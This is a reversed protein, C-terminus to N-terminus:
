NPDTNVGGSIPMTNVSGNVTNNGLYFTARTYGVFSGIYSVDTAITKANVKGWATCNKIQENSHDSTIRGFASATAYIEQNAYDASVPETNTASFYDNVECFSNCDTITVNAGQVGGGIGGVSSRGYTTGGTVSVTKCHPGNIIGSVNCHHITYPDANDQSIERGFLGGVGCGRVTADSCDITAAYTCNELPISTVGAIGGVASSSEGNGKYTIIISPANGNEDELMSVNSIRANGGTAQGVIGGIYLSGDIGVEDNMTINHTGMVFINSIQGNSHEAVLGGISLTRDTGKLGPLSISLDRLRVNDINGTSKRALAGARYADKNAFGTIKTNRIELNRVNGDCQFFISHIANEIYHFNADFTINTPLNVPTFDKGEFDLNKTLVLNGANDKVLIDQYESGQSISGLLEDIDFGTIPPDPNEWPDKTTEQDIIGKAHEIDLIYSKGAQLGDVEAEPTDLVEVDLSLYLRNSSYNLESGKYKGPELFLVVYGANASSGANSAMVKTTSITGENTEGHSVFSFGLGAEESAYTLQYGNHFSDGKKSFWYEEAYNNKTNLLVLRTCLHKFNLNVAYGYPVDTAEAILPDNLLPNGGLEGDFFGETESLSTTMGPIYYATFTGKQANWPWTLRTNPNAVWKKGDYRYADYRRVTSNDTLTFNGQVQIVDGEAFKEKEPVNIYARTTAGWAPYETFLTVPEEASPTRQENWDNDSCASLLLMLLLNFYIISRKM